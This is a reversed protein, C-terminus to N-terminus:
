AITHLGALARDIAESEAPTSSSSSAISGGSTSSCTKESVACDGPVNRLSRVCLRPRPTIPELLQQIPTSVVTRFPRDPQEMEIIRVLANADEESGPADPASIVPMFVGLVREASGAAEGYSAIRPSDAPSAIRDFIPTRYIGPEVVFPTLELPFRSTGTRM